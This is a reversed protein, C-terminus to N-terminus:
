RNQPKNQNPTTQNPNPIIQNPNSQSPNPNVQNPNTQNPNSQDPNTEQGPANDRNQDKKNQDSQNDWGKKSVKGAMSIYEGDSLKSTSGDRKTITGDTNITSGDSLSVQQTMNSKQGNKIIMLKGNKMVIGDEHKDKDSKQQANRSKQDQQNTQAFGITSICVAIALILKKM